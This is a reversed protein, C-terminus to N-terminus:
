RVVNIDGRLTFIVRVAAIHLFYIVSFPFLNSFVEQCNGFITNDYRYCKWIRYRVSLLFGMGLYGFKAPSIARRPTFFAAMELCRPILSLDNEFLILPRDGNVRHSAVEM